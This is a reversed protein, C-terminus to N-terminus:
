SDGCTSRDSRRSGLSHRSATRSTQAAPRRSSSTTSAMLATLPSPSAATRSSPLPTSSPTIAAPRLPAPASVTRGLSSSSVTTMAPSPNRDAIPRSCRSIRASSAELCAWDWIM